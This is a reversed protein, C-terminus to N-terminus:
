DFGSAFGDSLSTCFGRTISPFEVSRASKMWVSLGRSLATM